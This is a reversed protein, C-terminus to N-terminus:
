PLDPLPNITDAEWTISQDDSVSMAELQEDALL